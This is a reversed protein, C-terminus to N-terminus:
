MLMWPEVIEEVTYDSLLKELAATEDVNFLGREYDARPHPTGYVKEYLEYLWEPSLLPGWSDYDSIDCKFGNDSRFMDVVPTAGPKAVSEVVEYSTFIERIINYNPWELDMELNIEGRIARRLNTQFSKEAATILRNLLDLVGDATKVRERFLPDVAIMSKINSMVTFTDIITTIKFLLPFNSQALAVIPARFEEFVDPFAYKIINLVRNQQQTQHMDAAGPGFDREIRKYDCLVARSMDIIMSFVGLHPFVYAHQTPIPDDSDNAVVYVVRSNVTSGINIHQNHVRHITINNLHLDGHIIGARSNMCYFAYIYEFMHKAFHEISGFIQAYDRKHRESAIKSPLDRMTFGVYESTTCVALSTLRLESNAYASATTIKDSLRGFQSSLTPKKVDGDVHTFRSADRLREVVTDASQSRAYKELMAPNDFLVPDAGHIYFWGGPIPFSPSIFNLVLNAVIDNLYMERWTPYIIDGVRLTEIVTLPTIKQGCAIPLLSAEGSSQSSIYTLNHVLKAIRTESSVEALKRHAIASDPQDIIGRYHEDTHNELTGTAIKRYDAIWSAIFVMIASRSNVTSETAGENCGATSYVEEVLKMRSSTIRALVMPEVAAFEEAYAITVEKFQAASILRSHYEGDQSKFAPGTVLYQHQLKGDICRSHLFGYIANNVGDDARFVTTTFNLRTGAMILKLLSANRAIRLAHSYAYNPVTLMSQLHHNRISGLDVFDKYANAIAKNREKELKQKLELDPKLDAM